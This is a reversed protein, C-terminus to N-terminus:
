RGKIILQGNWGAPWQSRPCKKGLPFDCQAWTNLQVPSLWALSMLKFKFQLCIRVGEGRGADGAATTIVWYVQPIREVAVETCGESSVVVQHTCCELAPCVDSRTQLFQLHFREKRQFGGWSPNESARENQKALKETNKELGPMCYLWLPDCLLQQVVTFVMTNGETTKKSINRTQLKDSLDISENHNWGM